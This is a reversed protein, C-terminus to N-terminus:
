IKMSLFDQIQYDKQSFQINHANEQFGLKLLVDMDGM